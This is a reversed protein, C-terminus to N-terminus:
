AVPAGTWTLTGWAVASADVERVTLIILAVVIGLAVVSAFLRVSVPRSSTYFGRGAESRDTRVAGDLWLWRRVRAKWGTEVATPENPDSM